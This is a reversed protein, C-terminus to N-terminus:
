GAQLRIAARLAKRAAIQISDHQQACCSKRL